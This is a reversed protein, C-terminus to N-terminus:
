YQEEPPPEQKPQEKGLLASGITTKRYLNKIGDWFGDGCVCNQVKTGDAKRKQPCNCTATIKSELKNVRDM